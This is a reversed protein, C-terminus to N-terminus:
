FCVYEYLSILWKCAALSLSPLGPRNILTRKASPQLWIYSSVLRTSSSDFWCNQRVLWIPQVNWGCFCRQKDRCYPCIMRGSAVIKWSSWNKWKNVIMGLGISPLYFDGGPPSRNAGRPTVIMCGYRLWPDVLWSPPARLRRPRQDATKKQRDETGQKPPAGTGALSTGQNNTAPPMCPLRLTQCCSLGLHFFHPIASLLNEHFKSNQMGHCKSDLSIIRLVDPYVDNWWQFKVNWMECACWRGWIGVPWLPSSKDSVM